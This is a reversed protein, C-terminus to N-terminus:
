YRLRYQLYMHRFLLGYVHLIRWWHVCWEVAVRWSSRSLMRIVSLSTFWLRYVFAVLPRRALWMCIHGIAHSAAYLQHNSLDNYIFHVLCECVILIFTRGHFHLWTHIYVTQMYPYSLLALNCEMSSSVTQSGWTNSHPPMDVTGPFAHWDTSCWCIM